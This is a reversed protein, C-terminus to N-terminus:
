IKFMGVIDRLMESQSSLEEASAALEESGSAVGQTIDNIQNIARIIENSSTSQEEMMISIEDSMKNVEEVEIAVKQSMENLELSSRAINEMIAVTNKVNDIIMRLSESTKVVLQSGNNIKTNSENIHHNIEQSSQATQDALKAIEEAVVAFGKGHEGARAAEISANLSLLNIQDSIDTIITVIETIKYSSEYIDKMSDVTETLVKEGELAYSHTEEAMTNADQASTNIHFISNALYDMSSKASHAKHSQSKANDSVSDITAKIEEMASSTEEISAAQDQAEHALNESATRMEISSASVHESASQVSLVIDVLKDLFYNFSESAKGIEDITKVDLKKTLDAEGSSINDFSEKIETLPKLARKIFLRILVIAMILIIINIVINQIILFVHEQLFKKLSYIIEFAGHMEGAKWGEMAGGTPDTGDDRNWLTKSLKPDGHCILCDKTLRIAKFYRLTEAKTDIKYFSDLNEKKMKKLVTSEFPTPKNNPNRPQFKPVRFAYNLSKAKKRMTVISSIVPVSYFFKGKIDKVLHEKSYVGRKWNDSQYQRIAEGMTVIAESKQVISEEALNRIRLIYLINTISWVLFFIIIVGLLVKKQISLQSKSKVKKTSKKKNNKSNANDLKEDNM